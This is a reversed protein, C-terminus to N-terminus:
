PEALRLMPGSPTPVSRLLQAGLLDHLLYRVGLRAGPPPRRERLEWLPVERHRSRRVLGLLARRGHVFARVFRGVGPVALWWSGADRVTLVGAGVLQTVDADGFGLDQVHSLEYSLDPCTAVASDLFRRVLGARPTGDVAALVKERYPEMFVIALTDTGLGLHLLRIHGEDRLRNLHRDVATRDSVLSYLQHRLVLPPLSDGFLRRPFLAAVDRLAAEVAGASGAPPAGLSPGRWSGEHEAVEESGDPTLQGRPAEARNRKAAFADCLLRRRRSM